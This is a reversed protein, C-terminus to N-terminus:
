LSPSQGSRRPVRLAKRSRRADTSSGEVPQASPRWRSKLVKAANIDAHDKLGCSTCAFESRSSRSAADVHGCENCTQSSYAAPVEVLSGGSWALKYRFMEALRGWGAGLIGRALSSSAKIMNGIQLKEIVVIGHSKAYNHSVQHLLHERQRRVTRHLAAVRVKAKERNKSGKKRRSVTRQARALRGLSCELYRPNAIVKGDSDATLCVVGRDLAVVPTKRALPDEVEIECLISAFWQDGDRRIACTKPKGELPRHAVARL